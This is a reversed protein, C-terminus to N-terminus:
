TEYWGALGPSFDTVDPLKVGERHMTIGFEKLQRYFEEFRGDQHDFHAYLLYFEAQLRSQRVHNRQEESEAMDLADDWLKLMENWFARDEEKDGGKATLYQVPMSYIQFGNASARTTIRDIYERIYRWGAGYYDQLFEDMLDLYEERSINPNWLLKAILYGRLEGFDDTPSQANGQEFLGVVNHEKFFQINDYITYLNPFPALYYAFNTTYDWVYLRKCIKAWEEIDKKFALNGGIKEDSIPHAFDCEISCLRIIVNDAPVLTKPAKRTYRYALTDVLIHPYDEKIAEAIRNVFRLLSGMPTGEAQDIARCKECQCGCGEGESDNQSISIITANPNEDLKKRVNSLVRQYVKEDSLCPQCNMQHPEDLLVSLTHVFLAYEINIGDDGERKGNLRHMSSLERDGYAPLWYVERYEFDPGYVKKTGELIEIGTAERIVLFERTYFRFGMQDELFTFIGNRTGRANVGTIYLRGHEVLIAYGDNKILARMRKLEETDRHTKDLIIEYDTLQSDDAVTLEYGTAKHIMQALLVAAKQLSVNGDKPYVITYQAIDIGGITMQKIPFENRMNGRM